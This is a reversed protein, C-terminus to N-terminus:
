IANKERLTINEGEKGRDKKEEKRGDKVGERKEESAGEREEKRGRKKGGKKGEIPSSVRLFPIQKKFFGEEDPQGSEWPM